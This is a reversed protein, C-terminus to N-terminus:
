VDTAATVTKLHVFKGKQTMRIRTSTEKELNEKEVKGNEMSKVRFFPFSKRSNRAKGMEEFM